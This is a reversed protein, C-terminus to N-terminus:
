GSHPRPQPLPKPMYRHLASGKERLWIQPKEANGILDEVLRWFRPGHNMERMHAVEHAVVYDLVFAPALILRWSFSLSRQTSCSGWRSATDRVTVHKPATGLQEAYYFARAELVKKAERKLFDLVRRATHESQGTVRIIRNGEERDIWVPTRRGEGRRIVHEEGRYLIRAGLGLPVAPPVQKLREAIWETEGRAFDIAHDISRKTPAVVSVEGTSPHVKVILRRARPNLKVTVSVPKGDIRLLARAALQSRSSSRSASVKRM